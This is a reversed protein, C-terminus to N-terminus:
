RSKSRNAPRESAPAGARLANRFETEFVARELADPPGGLNHQLVQWDAETPGQELVRARSHADDAGSRHLIEAARDRASWLAVERTNAAVATSWGAERAEKLLDVGDAELRELHGLRFTM